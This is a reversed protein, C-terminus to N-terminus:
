CFARSTKFAVLRMSKCSFYHIFNWFVEYFYSFLVPHVGFFVKLAYLLSFQTGIQPQDSILCFNLLFIQLFLSEILDLANSLGRRVPIRILNVSEFALITAFWLRWVCNEGGFLYNLFIWLFGISLKGFRFYSLFDLWCIM